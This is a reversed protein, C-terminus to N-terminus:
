KIDFDACEAALSESFGELAFKSACYTSNFPFGTLGAVSTVMIVHGSKSGKWFPLIKQTLYIPGYVNTAFMSRVKSTSQTEFPGIMGVGANNVSLFIFLFYM